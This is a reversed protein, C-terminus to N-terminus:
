VYPTRLRFPMSDRRWALNQSYTGSSMDVVFESRVYTVKTMFFNILQMKEGMNQYNIEKVYTRHQKQTEQIRLMVGVLKAFDDYIVPSLIIPDPDSFKGFTRLNERKIENFASNVTTVISPPISLVRTIVPHTVLQEYVINQLASLSPDMINDYIYTTANTQIVSTDQRQRIPLVPDGPAPPGYLTVATATNRNNQGHIRSVELARQFLSANDIVDSNSFISQIDRRFADMESSHVGQSYTIVASYFKVYPNIVLKERIQKLLEINTLYTERYEDDESNIGPQRNVVYTDIPNDVNNDTDYLSQFVSLAAPRKFKKPPPPCYELVPAKQQTACSSVITPPTTLIYEDYDSESNSDTM